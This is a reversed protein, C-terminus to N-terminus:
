AVLLAEAGVPTYGAALFARVSAANGPAIQAWIPQAVLHRAAQALSRGLGRGRYEPDVEVAAEWRGAVGRGVILVGGACSWVRVGDRHHRAREVRPHGTVTVETLEVPPPGGCPMALTLLDINNVQRDMHMELARLFPPNLAASLDGDPLRSRIWQEEVDAFIVSHATFAIVGADRKSPQAVITPGEGPCPM